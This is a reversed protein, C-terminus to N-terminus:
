GGFLQVIGWLIGSSILAPIMYQQFQSVIGWVLGCSCVLVCIMRLIMLITNLGDIDSHLFEYDWLLMHPVGHTIFGGFGLAVGKIGTIDVARFGTLENSMQDWQDQGTYVGSCGM